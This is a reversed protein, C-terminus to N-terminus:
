MLSAGTVYEVQSCCLPQDLQSPRFLVCMTDSVLTVQSTPGPAGGGGLGKESWTSMQRSTTKKSKKFHLNFWKKREKKSIKILNIKKPFYRKKKLNKFNKFGEDAFKSHFKDIGIQFRFLAQDKPPIPRTEHKVKAQVAFKLLL